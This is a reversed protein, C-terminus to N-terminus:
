QPASSLVWNITAQYDGKFMDKTAKFYFGHEGDQDVFVEEDMKGSEDQSILPVLDDTIPIIGNKSRYYFFNKSAQKKENSGEVTTTFRGELLQASLSWSNGLLREDTVGVEGFSTIKRERGDIQIGKEEFNEPFSTLKLVGEIAINELSAVESKNGETDVVYVKIPYYGPKLGTTPIAYDIKSIEDKNVPFEGAAQVPQDGIQYFIMVQDSDKETISLQIPITQGIPYVHKKDTETITLEPRFQKELEIMSNNQEGDAIQINYFLSFKGFSIQDLYENFNIKFTGEGVSSDEGYTDKLLVLNSDQFMGVLHDATTKSPDRWFLEIQKEAKDNAIIVSNDAPSIIKAEPVVKKVNLSLEPLHFIANRGTLQGNLLQNTADKNEVKVQFTLIAEDLTSGSLLGINPIDGLKTTLNSGNWVTDSLPVNNIKTTNPVIKLSDPLTTQAIIEQFNQKGELWKGKISLELNSYGDVTDGSELMKGSSDKIAFKADAVVLGPVQEFVVQQIAKLTPGTSGTFGWYATSVLGGQFLQSKVYAPDVQVPARQNIKVMLKGQTYDAENTDWRLELRTWNGTALPLDTILNHHYLNRTSGFMGWNEKYGDQTGPYVIGIHNNHYQSSIGADLNGDGSSNNGYLDFEIGISNPIGLLGYYKSEGLAGMAAGSYTFWRPTNSFSQMLFVAGDASNGGADGQNIYATLTFDKKFDLLNNTTSWVAGVQNTGNGTITTVGNSVTASNNSVGLDTTFVGDLLIHKPTPQVM